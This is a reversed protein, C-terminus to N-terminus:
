GLACLDVLLEFINAVLVLLSNTTANGVKTVDPVRAQPLVDDPPLDYRGLDSDHCCLHSPQSYIDTEPELNHVPIWVM